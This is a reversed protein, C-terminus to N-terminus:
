SHTVSSSTQTTNEETSAIENNPTADAQESLKIDWENAPKYPDGQTQLSGEIALQRLRWALFLDGTPLAYKSLAQRIVKSAKQYQQSCFSKLISDYQEMPKHSLKKGGELLRIAANEQKIKEWEDSDVEMESPTTIRALKRAKYLERPPIESINKPYFLKGNTDLFPLGSINIIWFRERHKKLYSLLWYYAIIDPATPAMWFWVQPVESKHLANSIQLVRELDDVVVPTKANPIVMQWFATRMDSFKQGEVKLLPGLNLLDRLVVIENGEAGFNLRIAESLSQAAEDGVILHYIM